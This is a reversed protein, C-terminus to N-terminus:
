RYISKIAGWNSPEASVPHTTVVGVGDIDAGLNPGSQQGQGAVDTLRVYWLQADPGFGNDDINVASYWDGTATGVVYWTVADASVEVVTNESSPGVEYVLIDGDTSGGGSFAVSFGLTISGGYGLSVFTCSTCIDHGDWDPVGLARSPDRYPAEPTGNRMVPSYNVVEAAWDTGGAYNPIFVGTAMLLVLLIIPSNRRVNRPHSHGTKM